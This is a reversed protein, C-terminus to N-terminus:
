ELFMENLPVRKFFAQAIGIFASGLANEFAPKMDNLLEEWNENLFVNM